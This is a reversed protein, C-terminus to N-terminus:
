SFAFPDGRDATYGQYRSIIHYKYRMGRHAGDVFGEWIGSDDQRECLPHRSPDWGNFDGIVTVQSANPAWVSFWTGSTNNMVLPHSGMKRYLRFHRGQRFLYIDYDSFFLSEEETV